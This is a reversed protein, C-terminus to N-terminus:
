PVAILVAALGTLESNEDLLEDYNIALISAFDTEGLTLETSLQLQDNSIDLVRNTSKTLNRDGLSIVGISTNSHYETIKANLSFGNNNDTSIDTIKPSKPPEASREAQTPTIKVLVNRNDDYTLSGITYSLQGRKNINSSSEAEGTIQYDYILVIDEAKLIGSGEDDAKSDIINVEKLSINYDWSYNNLSADNSFEDILKNFSQDIVSEPGDKSDLYNTLITKTKLEGITSCGTLVFSLSLILILILIIKKTKM